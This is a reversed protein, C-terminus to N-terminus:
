KPNGKMLQWTEQLGTPLNWTWQSYAPFYLMEAGWFLSGDLNELPVHCGSRDLRSGPSNTQLVPCCRLLGILPYIPRSLIIPSHNCLVTVAKDIVKLPNITDLHVTHTNTQLPIWTLSRQSCTRGAGTSWDTPQRRRETGTRRLWHQLKSRCQPRWLPARDLM